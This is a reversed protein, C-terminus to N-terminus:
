GVLNGGMHRDADDLAPFVQHKHALAAMLPAADGFPQLGVVNRVVHHGEVGRHLPQVYSHALLHVLRRHGADDRFGDLEVVLHVGYSEGVGAHRGPLCFFGHFFM